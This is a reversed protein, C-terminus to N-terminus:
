SYWGANIIKEFIIKEAEVEDYVLMNIIGTVSATYNETETPVSSRYASYYVTTSGGEELQVRDIKFPRLSQETDQSRYEILQPVDNVSSSSQTQFSQVPIILMPDIKVASPDSVVIVKEDTM